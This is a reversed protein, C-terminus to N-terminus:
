RPRGGPLARRVADAAAFACVVISAVVVIVGTVLTVDRAAVGQALVSGLGPLNVFSEVVVAGGFLTACTAALSAAIAPLALPLVHRTLVRVPALGDLVAAEVHALTLADAVAGRVVRQTWAASPLALGLVPLVLMAAAISGDAGPVVVAPAWGLWGSLVITLITLVVFEPLCLLGTAAVSTVRDVPRGARWAALTGAGIGVLAVIALALGGLVLTRRLPEAIADRVPAGRATTGLDGRALGAFREGLRQLRPEDLGLQARLAAVQAPPTGREVLGTTADGPLLDALVFVLAAVVAVVGAIRLATQALVRAADGAASM